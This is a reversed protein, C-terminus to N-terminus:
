DLVDIKLRRIMLNKTLLFHLENSCSNGSYDMGFNGMKPDCYRNSYDVFKPFADPRLINILNFMEVPRNLMPTGSILICRKANSLIPM